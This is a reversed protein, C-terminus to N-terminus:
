TRLGREAIRAQVFRAEDEHTTLSGEIRADKLGRLVEGLFPGEEVGLSILDNGDLMPKVYRLLELYLKLAEKVPPSDTLLANVQTAVDSFGDLLTSLQVRSLGPDGIRPRTGTAVECLSRVAFTGRVVGAWSAPMRLRHIFSEGENVSLPYSLAALHALPCGAVTQPSLASVASGEGLPPHIAKLIGLEACRSLSLYPCEEEFAHELEQRIRDGSVSDLAGGDVAERLLGQTGDELRFGLRQEYRVARLIRTPDDLFSGSHLIRISGSSLDGEGGHNDLLTGHLPGTLAIAMANISFDRRALDDGITSPTVDPLAGPSSYTERRATAVDFDHADLKVKATGFQSYVPADGGLERSVELAISAADGEVVFDLDRVPRGLLVDRVSGGVLYLPMNVQSARDALAQLVALSSPPLSQRITTLRNTTSQAM